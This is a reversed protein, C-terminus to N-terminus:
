HLEPLRVQHLHCYQTHMMQKNTNKMTQVLIKVEIAKCYLLSTIAKDDGRIM